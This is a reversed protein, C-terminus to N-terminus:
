DTNTPPTAAAKWADVFSPRYFLALPAAVLLLLAEDLPGPIPLLGFGTLWRLWRPIRNDRALLGVARTTRRLFSLPSALGSDLKVNWLRLAGAGDTVLKSEVRM